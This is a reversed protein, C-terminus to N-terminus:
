LSYVAYIFCFLLIDDCKSSFLCYFHFFTLFTGALTCSKLLTLVLYVQRCPSSSVNSWLWLQNSAVNVNEPSKGVAFSPELYDADDNKGDRAEFTM